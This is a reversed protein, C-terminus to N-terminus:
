TNQINKKKDRQVYTKEREEQDFTLLEIKM